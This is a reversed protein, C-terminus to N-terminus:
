LYKAFLAAAAALLASTAAAVWALGADGEMFGEAAVTLLFIQLVLLLLVYVLVANTVKGRRRGGPTTM